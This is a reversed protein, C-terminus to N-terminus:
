ATSYLLVLTFFLYLFSDLFTITINRVTIATGHLVHMLILYRDDRKLHLYVKEIRYDCCLHEGVMFYTLECFKM